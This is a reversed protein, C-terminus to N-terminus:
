GRRRLLALGGLGLLMLSSPEPIEGLVFFTLDRGPGTPPDMMLGGAPFLENDLLNIFKGDAYAGNNNGSRWLNLDNTPDVEGWFLEFHYTKLGDLLLPSDLALTIYSEDPVTTGALDYSQVSGVLTDGIGDANTDEMIAMVLTHDGAGYIREQRAKVVIADVFSTEALKFTQGLNRTEVDSDGTNATELRVVGAGGNTQENAILPDIPATPSFSIGSPTPPGTTEFEGLFIPVEEGANITIAQDVVNSITGNAYYTGTFQLELSGSRLTALPADVSDLWNIMDMGLDDVVTANADAVNTTESLDGNLDYLEYSQTEYNYMLKWDGSRTVTQPRQNRAGDVLYGPLHWYLNERALTAANDAIIGSIDEGDLPTAAPLTAGAVSAFTKYFDIPAVPTDNVTGGDVLAANGSWAVMPVRIGGEDFEGKQGKLSGNNSQGQRGGNDSYFVVLTNEDLNKGPNSPDPTTELYDILRAVSQDMGEILAGFSANSDEVGPTKAQYKALLDDRAQSNGIPTHVAYPNFQVMFSGSKNAEMFDIAADAMADSVHKATGVLADIEAVSAGNNFPKINDDVYQQTYNAAYPDLSADISGGFTGGSAHYNGPGGHTDGGFNANFGMHNVIDAAGTTEEAVHFKGLHATTYGATQLTEAYTIASNPIADTGTPLGQSPGVLLTGSGGRNLSNVQYVNNTPRPAYQGTLIASRTPACNQNAYASTFAMGETALRDITPTEYFDSPDGMTTLTNSTDAWGLDDAMIFVINPTSLAPMAMLGVVLLSLTFRPVM